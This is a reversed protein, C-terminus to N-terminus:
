IYDGERSCLTSRSRGGERLAIQSRRQGCADSSFPAGARASHARLGRPQRHGQQPHAPTRTGLNGRLSFLCDPAHDRGPFDFIDEVQGEYREAWVQRGETADALQATIRVEKGARQVSGEVVYRVGLKRGVERVRASSGKYAFVSHRAIVFLDPFRSLEIIITETMGDAFYEQGPDGINDFPLVAVSPKDPLPWPPEADKLGWYVGATILVAVATIAAIWAGSKWRIPVPALPSPLPPAARDM